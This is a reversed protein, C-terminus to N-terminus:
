MVESLFIKEKILSEQLPYFSSYSYFKRLAKCKHCPRTQDEKVLATFAADSCNIELKQLIMEKNDRSQKGNLFRNRECNRDM